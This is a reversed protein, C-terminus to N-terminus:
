RQYINFIRGIIRPRKERIPVIQSLAYNQFGTKLPCSSCPILVCWLLVTFLLIVIDALLSVPHFKNPLWYHNITWGVCIFVASCLVFALLKNKDKVHVEIMKSFLLKWVFKAVPLFVFVGFSVLLALATWKNLYEQLSLAVLRFMGHGIHCKTIIHYTSFTLGLIM